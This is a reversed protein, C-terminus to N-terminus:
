ARDAAAEAAEKEWASILEPRFVLYQDFLHAIKQSLQLKKIQRNDGSFYARLSVYEPRSLRRSLTQMIRFTLNEPDFPDDLPINLSLKECLLGLFANPFPFAMNASVQNCEALQMAIWRAMGPSQTIIIEKEFVSALPRRTKQALRQLLVELRNSTHIRFGPM